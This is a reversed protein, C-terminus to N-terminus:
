FRLGATIPIFGTSEGSTAISVVAGQLFIKMTPGAKFEVGGGVNIYAKTESVGIPVVAGGGKIDSFSVNAVGLGAFFVGNASAAPAGFVFRADAGVMFVNFAAGSLVGSLGFQGWDFPMSHYEGKFVVFLTRTTKVGIGATGHFGATWYDDFLDPSAPVSVGGGVYFSVPKAYGNSGSSVRRGGPGQASSVSCFCVIFFCSFLVTVASHNRM